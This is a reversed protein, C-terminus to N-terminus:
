RIGKNEPLPKENTYPKYLTIAKDSSGNHLVNLQIM